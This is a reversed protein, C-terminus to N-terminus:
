QHSDYLARERPSAKRASIIRIEEGGHQEESTHVVLVIAIGDAIGISHWREESDVMRDPYSVVNPDDFIRAAAEFSIGHKRRNSRNKKEDWVFVM